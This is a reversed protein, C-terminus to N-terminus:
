SYLIGTQQVLENAIWGSLIIDSVLQLLKLIGPKTKFYDINVDLKPAAPGTESPVNVTTSEKEAM